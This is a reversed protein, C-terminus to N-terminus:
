QPGLGCTGGEAVEDVLKIAVHLLRQDSVESMRQEWVGVVLADDEGELRIDDGRRPLAAGRHDLLRQVAVFEGIQDGGGLVLAGGGVGQRPQARARVDVTNGPGLWTGDTASNMKTVPRAQGTMGSYDM